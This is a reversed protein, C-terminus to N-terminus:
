LAHTCIKSLMLVTQMCRGSSKAAAVSKNHTSLVSDRAMRLSRWDDPEDAGIGAAGQSTPAIIPIVISVIAVLAIDTPAPSANPFLM